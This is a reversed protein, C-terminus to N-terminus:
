SNREMQGTAYSHSTSSPERDPKWAQSLRLGLAREPVVPHEEADDIAAELSAVAGIASTADPVINQGSLKDQPRCRM